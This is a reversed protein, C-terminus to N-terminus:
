WCRDGGGTQDRVGANTLSLTACATDREAQVGQPEAQVTYSLATAGDQISLAYIVDAGDTEQGDRGINMTDDAYGLESLDAAYSKNDIFFQEQRDAIRYLNARAAQRNSITRRESQLALSPSTQRRRRCATRSRAGARTASPM